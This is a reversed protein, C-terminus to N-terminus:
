APSRPEGAVLRLGRRRGRVREGRGLDRQRTQESLLRNAVDSVLAPDATLGILEASGVTSGRYLALFTTSM